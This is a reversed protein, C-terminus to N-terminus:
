VRQFGHPLDKDGRVIASAVSNTIHARLRADEPWPHALNDHGYVADREILIVHTFGSPDLVKVVISRADGNRIIDPVM